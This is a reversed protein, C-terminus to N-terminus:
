LSARPSVMAAPIPMREELSQANAFTNRRRPVSSPGGHSEHLENGSLQQPSGGANESVANELWKEPGIATIVCSTPDLPGSVIKSRVFLTGGRLVFQASM